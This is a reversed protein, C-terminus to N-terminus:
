LQKAVEVFMALRQRAWVSQQDVALLEFGAFRQVVIEPAHGGVLDFAELALDDLAGAVTALSLVQTVAFQQDTDM